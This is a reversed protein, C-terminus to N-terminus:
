KTPKRCIKPNERMWEIKNGFTSFIYLCDPEYSFALLGVTSREVFLGAQRDIGAALVWQMGTAIRSHNAHCSREQRRQWNLRRRGERWGGDASERHHPLATERTRNGM